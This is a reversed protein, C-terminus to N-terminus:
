FLLTYIHTNFLIYLKFFQDHPSPKSLKTKRPIQLYCELGLFVIDYCYVTVGQSMGQLEQLWKWVMNESPSQCEVLNWNLIEPVWLKHIFWCWLPIFINLSCIIHFLFKFGHFIMGSLYSLFFFCFCFCFLTVIIFGLALHYNLLVTRKISQWNSKLNCLSM